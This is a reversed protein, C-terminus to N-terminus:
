AESVVNGDRGCPETGVQGSRSKDSPVRVWLDAGTLRACERDNNLAKPIVAGRQHHQVAKREAAVLDNSKTKLVALLLKMDRHGRPKGFRGRAESLARAVWRLTM